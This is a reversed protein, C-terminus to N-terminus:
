NSYFSYSSRNGNRDMGDIRIRGTTTEMASILEEAETYSRGNFQLIIFGDRFGMRAVYGGQVVNLLRIGASIKYKGLDAASLPQFDAGLVKSNVAGKMTLARNDEKSILKLTITKEEGNKWLVLKAEDGPRLYSLYEDYLAKSTTAYGNVSLIIDGKRIGAKWAPGDELVEGVEVADQTLKAAVTKASTLDVIDMGPLARKVVGFEVLDKVIKKVINVPIAFGYGTYSGTNSQIATNIGVLQGATNVLAGGSNGPNIAADTQIFSEIPFQNQVININRGKASVIGATVTSTLNFPNGVALVWDGVLVDDSNAMVIAPLNDAEIKLLALDAGPETGVVKATFEQKQKNLVVTIKNANAIVHNNTVIYGDKSVIVGSGTSTAEGRSGFPDFDWFWGFPSQMQVTSQTKIFVVSPTSIASAKVFGNPLESLNVNRYAGAPTQIQTYDNRVTQRVFWWAGGIGCFLPLLVSFILIKSIKNKM